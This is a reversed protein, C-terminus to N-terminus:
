LKPRIYRCLIEAAKRDMLQRQRGTKDRYGLIHLVGHIVYLYLEYLPRTGYLRSNYVATDASVVIDALISDKGHSIDFAIVDTPGNRGLYKLNMKRIEKDGVFSVTIEAPKTIKESSFCVRIAKKIKRM